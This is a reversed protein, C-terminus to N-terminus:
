CIILEITKLHCYVEILGYFFFIDRNATNFKIIRDLYVPFHKLIAETVNVM